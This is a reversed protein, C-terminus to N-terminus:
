NYLSLQKQYIDKVIKEMGPYDEFTIAGSEKSTKLINIACTSITNSDPANGRLSTFIRDLAKRVESQNLRGDGDEDFAQFTEKRDLYQYGEM